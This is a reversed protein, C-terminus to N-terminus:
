GQRREAEGTRTDWGLIALEAVAELESRTAGDRALISMGNQVTQVFRALAHVDTSAPIEGESIAQNLRAKLRDLTIARATRVLEGLEVHGESGVSSLTVMCGRPIDAVCGTLAAASDMLLSMVAERATGASFFGAWVFAENNDRYHRLAEAYLAEKSGFAAYLSPSGIGMAETLDAISTAEFGKIWFLRTAQALAAERDFARPRGRSRAPTENVNSMKDSKQM